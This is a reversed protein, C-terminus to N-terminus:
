VERIKVLHKVCELKGLLAGNVQHVVTQHMRKLGLSAVTRKTRLPETITSKILEIELKDAM